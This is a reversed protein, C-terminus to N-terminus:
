HAVARARTASTTAMASAVFTPQATDQGEILSLYSLYTVDVTPAQRLTARLRTTSSTTAPLAIWQSAELDTTSLSTWTSGDYIQWDAFFGANSTRLLGALGPTRPLSIEAYGKVNAPAVVGWSGQYSSGYSSVVSVGPQGLTLDFSSEARQPAEPDCSSSGLTVDTPSNGSVVSVHRQCDGSDDAYSLSVTSSPDGFVGANFQMGIDVAVLDQDSSVVAALDSLNTLVRLEQASVTWSTSTFDGIQYKQGGSTLWFAKPNIPKSFHFVLDQVPYPLGTLPIVQNGSGDQQFTRPGAVSWLRRFVVKGVGPAYAGGTPTGDANLWQLPTYSSTQRFAMKETPYLTYDSNTFAEHYGWITEAVINTFYYSRLTQEPFQASNGFPLTGGSQVDYYGGTPTQAFYHQVNMLSVPTSDSTWASLPLQNDGWYRFRLDPDLIFMNGGVTFEPFEHQQTSRVRAPIDLFSGVYALARSANSCCEYGYGRILLAPDDINENERGPSCIHVTSNSLDTWAAELLQARSSESADTPLGQLQALSNLYRAWDVYDPKGTGVFRPNLLPMLGSNVLAVSNGPSLTYNGSAADKGIMTTAPPPPGIVVSYSAHDSDGTADQVVLSVLHSGAGFLVTDGEKYAAGDITWARTVTAADFGSIVSELAVSLPSPYVGQLPAMAVIGFSTLGIGSARYTYASSMTAQRNDPAIAMIDVSGRSHAPTLCTLSTTSVVSVSTCDQGDMKVQIGSAFNQGTLQIQAGGLASGQLPYVSQLSIPPQSKGGGGCGALAGVLLASLSVRRLM